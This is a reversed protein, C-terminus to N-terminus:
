DLRSVCWDTTYSTENSAARATAIGFIKLDFAGVGLLPDVLPITHMDRYHIQGDQGAAEFSMYKEAPLDVILRAWGWRDGTPSVSPKTVTLPEDFSAFVGADSEYMWEGTEGVYRMRARVSWEFGIDWDVDEGPIWRHEFALLGNVTFPSIVQIGATDGIDDGTTVLCSALGGWFHGYERYVSSGTGTGASVIGYKSGIAAEPWDAELLLPVGNKRVVWSPYLEPHPVGANSYVPV